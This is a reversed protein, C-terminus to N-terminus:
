STVNSKHLNQVNKFKAWGALQASNLFTCFRCLDFTVGYFVFGKTMVQLIRYGLCSIVGTLSGLLFAGYPQIMLDAVCGVAVGGSLSRYTKKTLTKNMVDSYLTSIHKVSVCKAFRGYGNESTWRFNVFHHYSFAILISSITSNWIM